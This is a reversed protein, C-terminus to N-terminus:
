VPAELFISGGKLTRSEVGEIRLGLESLVFTLPFLNRKGM